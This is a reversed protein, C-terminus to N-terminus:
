CFSHLISSRATHVLKREPAVSQRSCGELTRSSAFSLSRLKPRPWAPRSSALFSSHGIDKLCPGLAPISCHWYFSALSFHDTSLSPQFFRFMHFITCVLFVLYRLSISVTSTHIFGAGFPLHRGHVALTSASLRQTPIGVKELEQLEKKKILSERCDNKEDKKEEQTIQQGSTPETRRSLLYFWVLFAPGPAFSRTATSRVQYLATAPFRPQWTNTRRAM